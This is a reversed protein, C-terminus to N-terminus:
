SERPRVLLRGGTRNKPPNHDQPVKDELSFDYYLKEGHEKKGMM